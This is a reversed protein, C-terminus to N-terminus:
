TGRSHIDILEELIASHNLIRFMVVFPLITRPPTAMGSRSSTRLHTCVSIDHESWFHPRLCWATFGLGRWWLSGLDLPSNETLQLSAPNHYVM